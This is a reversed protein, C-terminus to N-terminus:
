ERRVVIAEDPALTTSAAPDGIRAPDTSSHVITGPTTVAVEAPGANLLFEYPGRRFGVVHGDGTEHWRVAADPDLERRLAVLHRVRHLPSTPDERQGAVTQEPSDHSSPLWPDASRSFGEGPETSWPMPTRCGDRGADVDAGGVPDAKAEPPVEGDEIALEEGQYLFPLGPLGLLLTLLALSRRAGTDGGGFRTPPRHEDHSAQVWGVGAAGADLPARLTSELEQASWAMHMPAFWFGIHLGDGRVLGALEDADLVYTEGILVADYEDVIARWRRFIDLTEPQLIDHRHELAHWQTWRDADHDVPRREPNSRLDTDKVLAQAVDIRFGSVGRDLWFRLIDDFEEIVAPNRWNLDPQEPLFMHLYQQGAADDVSWVPGGFYGVWNNPRAGTPDVDRWLYYDRTASDRSRRATRFWPHQDSTHNPVIDIVIRLGLRDAEAVLADFDDLTGFTPHVDTYDAVDYGYDVMPSPYFPTIWVVGIGLWALHELRATLGPLDGIGDDDGDAFSRLYVEYGVATRWWADPDPPM